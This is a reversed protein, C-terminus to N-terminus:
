QVQANVSNIVNQNLRIGARTQAARTYYDFIDSQLSQQQQNRVADLVETAQESGLDADNIADLTVLFVRDTADVVATEGVEDLAFAATLLDPTAEEIWGDRSLNQVENFAPSTAENDEAAASDSTETNDANAPAEPAPAPQQPEAGAAVTEADLQLKEQEAAEMLLRHVENARWDAEVETRVEELPKPTPPVIENLRLAFIGGDDLQYLQAFDDESVAAAQERFTEYGLISGGEGRTEPTWDVEGLEMPTEEAVDELSAGSALLDEFESSRDDIVRVARAAAVESRLEEQADEFSVDVPDLIANMSFLAPGLDTDIPGVVGPGELAFVAEGAAGLDAETVEGLDVDDLTLGREMVIAEFPADGSEIRAKAAEADEASPFVLRGVMRREPQQFESRRAEYAERLAAEDLEVEGALMDPTLWVYTIKRIEPATFREINAQHWAALTEDSPPEIETTLEDETVERWRIDRTELLWGAAQNVVPDPVNVGGTVARQLILRAEDMRVDHEFEGESLGERRLLSAYANRDFQGTPGQFAPAGSITSAVQADGVSIGLRNAEEELTAVTFLRAQVQQMLGAARAQEMTIQQGAQQSAAALDSRLGRAYDDATIETDGVSGVAASGGAFNTVGFGGLGLILLGLLIWVIASKGHTRLNKM